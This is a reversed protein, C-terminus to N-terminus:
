GRRDFMSGVKVGSMQGNKQYFHHDMVVSKEQPYLAAFFEKEVGTLEADGKVAKPQFSTQQIQEAPKQAQQLKASYLPSYNGVANAAIKM